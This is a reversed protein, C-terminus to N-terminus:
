QIQRVQRQRGQFLIGGGRARLGMLDV